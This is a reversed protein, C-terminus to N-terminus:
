RSRFPSRLTRAPAHHMPTSTRHRGGAGGGGHRARRDGRDAERGPFKAGFGASSTTSSRVQRNPIESYTPSARGARLRVHSFKYVLVQLPVATSCSCRWLCRPRSATLRPRLFVSARGQGHSWSSRAPGQRGRLASPSTGDHGAISSSTPSAGRQGAPPPAHRAPRPWRPPRSRRSRRKASSDKRHQAAPQAQLRRPLHRGGQAGAEVSEIYAQQIEEGDHRRSNVRRASPAPSSRSRRRWIKIHGMYHISRSGRMPRFACDFVPLHQDKLHPAGRHNTRTSRSSSKRRRSTATALRALAKPVTQNVIKLM